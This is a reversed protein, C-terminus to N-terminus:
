KRLAPLAKDIGKLPIKLNVAQGNTATFVVLAEGGAGASLERILAEDLPGASECGRNDCLVFDAKRPKGAGITFQVGDKIRVGLPVRLAFVPKGADDQGIQWLLVTQRTDNNTVQLSTSCIPKGTKGVTDRCTVVWNDFVITETRQPGPSTAAPAPAPQAPKAQAWVEGGGLALMGIAAVALISGSLRPLPALLHRM